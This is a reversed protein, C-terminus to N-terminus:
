RVTITARSLLFGHGGSTSCRLGQRTSTCLIGRYRVSDGYALARTGDTEGQQGMVSDSTCALAARDGASLEVSHGWDYDCDAPKASPVRDMRLRDCRVHPGNYSDFLCGINGSPTSFGPMDYGSLDVPAPKPVPQRAKTPTIPAPTIPTPAPQTPEESPGASPEATVTVTAPGSPGSPEAKEDTNGGCAATMALVGVLLSSLMLLRTGRPLM